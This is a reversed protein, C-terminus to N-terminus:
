FQDGSLAPAQILHKGLHNWLMGAIAELLPYLGTAHQHITLQRQLWFLFNVTAFVDRHANVLDKCFGLCAGKQWFRHIQLHNIFIFM